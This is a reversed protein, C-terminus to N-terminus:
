VNSRERLRIYRGMLRDAESILNLFVCIMGMYHLTRSCTFLALHIYAM